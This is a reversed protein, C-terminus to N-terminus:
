LIHNQSMGLFRGFHQAAGALATKECSTFPRFPSQHIIMTGQQFSRQWTGVIQGNIVIFHVYVTHKKPDMQEAHAPDFIASRDAYSIYEDYNPLLFLKPAQEDAPRHSPRPGDPAFWYTQDGIVESTLGTGVLDVARRAEALTLSSWWTLDKVTAPGHSTFYRKALEALAEDHDLQKAQSAREELLAYTFQKGRRAGSCIVAELEAYHILYGLRIGEAVIGAQALVAGLETRTLQRGGALAAALVESGRRLLREDLDCQRYMYANLAHVRHKTAELLWRIDSPTVFHWTPRLLHTRLISGDAFAQDLDADTLGGTRQAVAWKAGAYDQSQVAGLWGVVDEATKLPTETLHQTHLRWQAIDQNLM